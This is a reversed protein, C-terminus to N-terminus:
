PPGEFSGRFAGSKTVGGKCWRAIEKRIQEVGSPTNKFLLLRLFSSALRGRATRPSLSLQKLIDAAHRFHGRSNLLRQGKFPTRPVKFCRRNLIMLSDHSFPQYQWLALYRKSLNLGLQPDLNLGEGFGVAWVKPDFTM